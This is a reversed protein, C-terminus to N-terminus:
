GGCPEGRLVMLTPSARGHLRVHTLGLVHRERNDLQAIDVMPVVADLREPAHAKRELATLDDPQHSLVAGPFRRQDLDEGAHDLGGLPRDQDMTHLLVEGIWVRGARHPDGRHILLGHEERVEVHRFVDECSVLDHAAAPHHRPAGDILPRAGNQLLQAHGDVWVRRHMLQADGVPLEDLNRFGERCAGLDQDQVLRGGDEGGPLDFRQEGDHVAQLLAAHGDEEDAVPQLFHAPPGIADDNEAVPM